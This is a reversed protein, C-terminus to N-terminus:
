YKYSQLLLNQCVQERNEWHGISFPIVHALETDCPYQSPNASVLGAKVAKIEPLGTALCRFGDRRLCIVKLLKQVARTPTEGMSSTTIELEEQFDEFPPPTIQPTASRAKVICLLLLLNPILVFNLHLM